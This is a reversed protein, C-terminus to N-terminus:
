RIFWRGRKALYDLVQLATTPARVSNRHRRERGLSLAAPAYPAGAQNFQIVKSLEEHSNVADRIKKAAKPAVSKVYNPDRMYARITEAVAERPAESKRYGASTPKPLKRGRRWFEGSYLEGWVRDFERVAGKTEIQGAVEDILHGLEHAIVKNAAGESLSAKYRIERDTGALGHRYTGVTKAPLKSAPVPVPKRGALIEAITHVDRSGLGIDGGGVTRRGAIFKARLDVGEITRSLRQGAPGGIGTGYDDSFPRLKQKYRGGIYRDEPMTEIKKYVQRRVAPPESMMKEAKRAVGDVVRRGVKGSVSAAIGGGGGVSAAVTLVDGIYRQGAPSKLNRPMPRSMLRKWAVYPDYLIHPWALHRNGKNDKYIPLLIGRYGRRPM